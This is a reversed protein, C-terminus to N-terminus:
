DILRAPTRNSSGLNNCSYQGSTIKFRSAKSIPLYPKEAFHFLILIEM